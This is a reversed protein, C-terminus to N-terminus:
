TFVAEKSARRVNTIVKSREWEGGPELPVLPLSDTKSITSTRPWGRVSGIDATAQNELERQTQLGARVWGQHERAEGAGGGPLQRRGELWQVEIM